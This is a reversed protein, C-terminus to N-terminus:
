CGKAYCGQGGKLPPPPIISTYFTALVLSIEQWFLIASPTALGYCLIQFLQIM